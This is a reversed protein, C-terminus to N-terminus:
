MTKNVSGQILYAWKKVRGPYFPFSFDLIILGRKNKQTVVEMPSVELKQPILKEVEEWLSIQSFWAEVQYYIDEKVTTVNEQNLVSRHQGPTVSQEIVDWEWDPIYNAPVLYTGWQRLTPYFPHSQSGEQPQM